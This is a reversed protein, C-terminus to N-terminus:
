AGGELLELQGPIPGPGGPVAPGEPGTLYEGRPGQGPAPWTHRALVPAAPADVLVCTPAHIHGAGCARCYSRWPMRGPCGSRCDFGYQTGCNPCPIKARNLLWAVLRADAEPMLLIGLLSGPGDDTTVEVRWFPGGPTNPGSSVSATINV